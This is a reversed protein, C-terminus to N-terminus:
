RNQPTLNHIDNVKLVGNTKKRCEDNLMKIASSKPSNPDNDNKANCSLLIAIVLIASVIIFSRNM